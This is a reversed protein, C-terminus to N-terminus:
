DSLKHQLYDRHLRFSLRVGGDEQSLIGWQELKDMLKAPLRIPSRHSALQRLAAEIEPDQEALQGISQLHKSYVGADTSAQEVFISFPLGSALEYLAKRVLLPHGGVLHWLQDLEAESLPLGHRAMLQIVHEPDFGSLKLFYGVNFPSQDLNDVTPQETYSLVLRFRAWIEDHRSREHWSRLLGCVDNTIEQYPVIRDFNDIALVLPTLNPKLLASAIYNTTTDNIPLGAMERIPPAALEHGTQISFWRLFTEPSAFVQKSAACLDLFVTRYGRQRAHVLLRSILSTKGFDKASNIHILAGPQELEACAIAEGPRHIFFPSDSRVPSNPNELTIPKEERAPRQGLSKAVERIGTTISLFAEDQNSWTTVAKGNTPLAQLRGLPTQRWEAPRLIIPIVLAKGADHRELARNVEIANIFDSAIFGPSILCLIIDAKELNSDIERAFDQGAMIKADTWIKVVGERRLNTLADELRKRLDADRRSYSIFLQLPSM